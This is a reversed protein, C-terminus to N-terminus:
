LILLVTVMGWVCRKLFVTKLATKSECLFQSSPVSIERLGEAGAGTSGGEKRTQSNRGYPGTFAM